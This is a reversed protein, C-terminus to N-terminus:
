RESRKAKMKLASRKSSCNICELSQILIVPKGCACYRGLKISEDTIRQKRAAEHHKKCLTVRAPRTCGDQTCVKPQPGLSSAVTVHGREVDHNNKILRAEYGSSAAASWDSCQPCWVVISYETQDIRAPM